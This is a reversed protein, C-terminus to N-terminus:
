VLCKTQGAQPGNINLVNFSGPIEDGPQPGSKLEAGRVPAVVLLLPVVAALSFARFM